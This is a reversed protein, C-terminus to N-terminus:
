GSCSELQARMLTLGRTRITYATSLSVEMRVALLQMPVGMLFVCALVCREAAPLGGLGRVLQGRQQEQAISEDPDVAEAPLSAAIACEATAEIWRRRRVAMLVRCKVRRFAYAAFPVGRTPDYHRTCHWVAVRAEQELDEVAFAPPLSRHLMRAIEAAWDLHSQTLDIM